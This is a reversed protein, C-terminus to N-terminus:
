GAVVSLQPQRQRVETVVAEFRTRSEPTPTYVILASPRKTRFVSLRRRGFRVADLQAVPVRRTRLPARCVLHDDVVQASYAWSWGQLFVMVAYFTGWLALFGVASGGGIVISVSILGVFAGFVVFATWFIWPM